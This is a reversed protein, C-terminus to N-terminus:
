MCAPRNAAPSRFIAYVVVSPNSLFALRVVFAVATIASLARWDFASLFPLWRLPLSRTAYKSKPGQQYEYAPKSPSALHTQQLSVLSSQRRLRTTGQSISVPQEAMLAM